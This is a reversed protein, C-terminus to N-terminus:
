AHDFHGHSLAIKSVGDLTIGLPHANATLSLSQGTDPLLKEENKEVLACFGHEGMVDQTICTRNEYLLTIKTQPPM